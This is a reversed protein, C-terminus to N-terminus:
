FWWHIGVVAVADETDEGARRAQRAADHYAKEWHIGAYPAFERRIEYRLRLGAEISNLGSSLGTDPDARSALNAELEPVLHLRQTLLLEKEVAVRASLRQGSGAFLQLETDIFYPATGTLAAMGWDRNPSDPQWDRRWGLQLDWFPAIAYQWGARSEASETEERHREGEVHLFAKHRDGGYWAEIDWSGTRGDDTDRVELQHAAVMLHQSGGHPMDASLAPQALSLTLPIALLPKM